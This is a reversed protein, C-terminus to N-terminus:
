HYHLYIDECDLMKKFRKHTISKNNGFIWHERAQDRDIINM